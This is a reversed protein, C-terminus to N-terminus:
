CKGMNQSSVMGSRTPFAEDVTMSHWVMIGREPKVEVAAIVLGGAARTPLARVVCGGMDKSEDQDQYKACSTLAQSM